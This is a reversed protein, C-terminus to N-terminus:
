LGPLRRDFTTSYDQEGCAAQPAVGSCAEAHREGSLALALTPPQGEATLNAVVVLSIIPGPAPRRGGDDV